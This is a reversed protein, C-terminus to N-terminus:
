GDIEWLVVRLNIKGAIFEEFVEEEKKTEIILSRFSGIKLQELTCNQKDTFTDLKTDSVPNYFRLRSNKLPIQNETLDFMERAKQLCLALTSSKTIQLQRVYLM